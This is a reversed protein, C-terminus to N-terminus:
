VPHRPQRSAGDPHQFESQACAEIGQEGSLGVSFPQGCVPRGEDVLRQLGVGQQRGFPAGHRQGGPRAHVPVGVQMGMGIGCLVFHHPAVVRAEDPVARRPLLEGQVPRASPGVVEEIEIGERRVALRLQPQGFPKGLGELKEGIASHEHGVAGLARDAPGHHIGAKLDLAQGTRRALPLHKPGGTWGPRLHGQHPEVDADVKEQHVAWQLGATQRVRVAPHEEAVLEERSAVARFQRATPEFKALTWRITRAPLGQLLQALGNVEAGQDVDRAVEHTGGPAALFLHEAM